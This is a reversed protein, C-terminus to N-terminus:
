KKYKKFREDMGVTPNSFDFVLAQTTSSIPIDISYNQAVLQQIENIKIHAEELEQILDGLEFERTRRKGTRIEIPFTLPKHMNRAVTHVIVFYSTNLKTSTNTKIYNLRTLLNKTEKSKDVRYHAKVIELALHMIGAFNSRIDETGTKKVTQV